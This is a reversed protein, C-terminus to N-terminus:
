PKALHPLVLRPRQEADSLRLRLRTQLDIEHLNYVKNQLNCVKINYYSIIHIGWSAAGVALGARFALKDQGRLWKRVLHSLIGTPCRIGANGGTLCKLHSLPGAPGGKRERLDYGRRRGSSSRGDQAPSGLKIPGALPPHGRAPNWRYESHALVPKPHPSGILLGGM